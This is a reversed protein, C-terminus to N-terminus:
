VQWAITKEGTKPHKFVISSDFTADGFAIAEAYDIIQADDLVVWGGKHVLEASARVHEVRDERVGDVFSLDYTGAVGSFWVKNTLGRSALEQEVRVIWTQNTEISVVRAVREAFFVTSGGCGVELVDWAPHLTYELWEIVEHHLWPRNASATKTGSLLVCQGDM